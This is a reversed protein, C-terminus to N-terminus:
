SNGTLYYRIFIAPKSLKKLLIKYEDRRIRKRGRMIYIYLYNSIENHFPQRRLLRRITYAREDTTPNKTNM